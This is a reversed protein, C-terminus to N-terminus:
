KLNNIVFEKAKLYADINNINYVPVNTNLVLVKKNMDIMKKLLLNWGTSYKAYEKQIKFPLDFNNSVESLATSNMTLGTREIHLFSPSIIIDELINKSNTIYEWRKQSKDDKTISLTVDNKSELHCNINEKLANATLLTDGSLGIVFKKNSKKTALLVGDIMTSFTNELYNYKNGFYDIIQEKLYDVVITVNRLGAKNVENLIYGFIPKNKIKLLPKPTSLTYPRFRTGKGGSLIVVQFDNLKTQYPM